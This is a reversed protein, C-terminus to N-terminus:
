GLALDPEVTFVNILTVVSSDARITTECMPQEM